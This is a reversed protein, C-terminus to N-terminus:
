TGDHGWRTRRAGLGLGHVLRSAAERAKPQTTHSRCALRAMWGTSIVVLSSLAAVVSSASAVTAKGTSEAIPLSSPTSVAPMSGSPRSEPAGGAARIAARWDATVPADVKTMRKAAGLLKMADDISLTDLVLETEGLERRQELYRRLEDKADM